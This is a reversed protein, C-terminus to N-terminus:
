GGMHTPSSWSPVMCAASVLSKLFSSWFTEADSPGIHLGVIEQKGETNIPLWLSQRAVSVTRGGERQKLDAAGLWRYPWDGFAWGTEPLSCGPFSQRATM